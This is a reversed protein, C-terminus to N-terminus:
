LEDAPCRCDCWYDKETTSLYNFVTCATGDVGADEYTTNRDGPFVFGEINYNATLWAAHAGCMKAAVVPDASNTKVGPHTRLCDPDSNRTPARTTPTRTTPAPTPAPTPASTPFIEPPPPPPPFIPKFPGYGTVQVSVMDQKPSRIRYPTTWRKVTLAAVTWKDFRIPFKGQTYPRFHMTGSHDGEWSCGSWELAGADDFVALLHAETDPDVCYEDGSTNIPMGTKTDIAVVHKFCLSYECVQEHYLGNGILGFLEGVIVVLALIVLGEGLAAAVEAVQAMRAARVIPAIAERANNLAMARAYGDTWGSLTGMRQLMNVYMDWNDFVEQPTWGPEIGVNAAQGAVLLGAGLDSGRLVPASTAKASLALSTSAPLSSGLACCSASVLAMLALVVFLRTM